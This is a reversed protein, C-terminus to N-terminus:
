RALCFGSKNPAITINENIADAFIKQQDLTFNYIIATRATILGQIHEAYGHNIFIMIRTEDQARIAIDIASLGNRLETPNHGEDLLATVEEYDKNLIASHLEPLDIVKNLSINGRSSGPDQHDADSGDAVEYCFFQKLIKILHKFM